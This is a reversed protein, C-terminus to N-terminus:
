METRLAAELARDIAIKRDLAAQLEAKIVAIETDDDCARLEARLEEIHEEITM